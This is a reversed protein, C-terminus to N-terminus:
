NQMNNGQVRKVHHRASPHRVHAAHEAPEPEYAYPSASDTANTGGLATGETPGYSQAFAPSASLTALAAGIILTRM